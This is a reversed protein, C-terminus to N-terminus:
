QVPLPQFSPINLANVVLCYCYSYKTSSLLDLRVSGPMLVSQINGFSPRKKLLLVFFIHLVLDMTILARPDEECSAILSYSNMDATCAVCSDMRYGKLSFFVDGFSHRVIWQGCIALM